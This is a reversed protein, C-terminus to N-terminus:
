RNYMKNLVRKALSLQENINQSASKYTGQKLGDERQKLEQYMNAVENRQEQTIYGAEEFRSELYEARDEIQDTTLQRLYTQQAALDEESVKPQEKRVQEELNEEVSFLKNVDVQNDQPIEVHKIKDEIAKDQESRQILKNAQKIEELNKKAIEKLKEVREEHSLHKFKNEDVM